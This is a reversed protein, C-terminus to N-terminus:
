AVKDAPPPEVQAKRKFRPLSRVSAAAPTGWGMKGFLWGLLAIIYTVIRMATGAAASGRSALYGLGEALVRLGLYVGSLAAGAEGLTLDKNIETVDQCDPLLVEDAAAPVAAPAVVAPAAVPAKPATALAVTSALLASALILFKM